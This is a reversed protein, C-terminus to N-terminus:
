GTLDALREIKVSLKLILEAIGQEDDTFRLQGIVFDGFRIPWGIIALGIHHGFANGQDRRGIFQNAFGIRKDILKSRYRSPM